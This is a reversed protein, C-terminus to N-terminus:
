PAASAPPKWPTATDPKAEVTEVYWDSPAGEPRTVGPLRVLTWELDVTALLTFQTPDDYGTAFNIVKGYPHALLYMRGGTPIRDWVIRDYNTIARSGIVARSNSQEFRVGLPFSAAGEKGLGIARILAIGLPDPALEGTSKATEWIMYGREIMERYRKDLATKGEPTTGVSALERQYPASIALIREIDNLSVASIYGEMTVYVTNPSPSCSALLLAATLAPAAPRSRPRV